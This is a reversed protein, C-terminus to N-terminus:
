KGKNRLEWIVRDIYYSQRQKDYKNVIKKAQMAFLDNLNAVGHMEEPIYDLQLIIDLAKNNKKKKFFYSREWALPVVNNTEPDYADDLSGNLSARFIPVFKGQEITYAAVVRVYTSTGRNKGYEIIIEDVGEGTVDAGYISIAGYAAILQLPYVDKDKLRVIFCDDPFSQKCYEDRRSRDLSVELISKEDSLWKGELSGPEKLINKPKLDSLHVALGMKGAYMSGFSPVGGAYSALPVCSFALMFAVTLIMLTTFSTKM